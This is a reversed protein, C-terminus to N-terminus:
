NRAIYYETKFYQLLKGPKPAQKNDVSHALM